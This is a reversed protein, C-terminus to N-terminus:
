TSIISIHVLMVTVLGHPGSELRVFIAPEFMMACVTKVISVSDSKMSSLPIELLVVNKFSPNAFYATLAPHNKTTNVNLETFGLMNHFFFILCDVSMSASGAM